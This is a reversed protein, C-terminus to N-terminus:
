GVIGEARMREIETAGYVCERLIDDTDAGPEPPPRRITVPTESLSVPHRIGWYEGEGWDLREALRLHRVQPDNLMGDVGNVAAVPVEAAVLVEVWHETTEGALTQAMLERLAPWNVARSAATAFRPDNAIVPNGLAATFSEWAFQAALTVWGDRTRFTGTPLNTPNGGTQAPLQGEMLYRSAYPDMFSVAAELVSSCVHQGRGTRGRAILAALIGQTLFSGAAIDSLATGAPWPGSGPGGTISMLGSLAQAVLDVGPRDAYPGDQGFGSISGYVVRDNVAWVSEPDVRLRYKVEPRFNEVVVDASECMRLFVDRGESRRLDVLISRKNRAVNAASAGHMVDAGAPDGIRVVDAGLDALQRTCL